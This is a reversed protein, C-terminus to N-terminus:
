LWPACGARGLSEERLLHLVLKADDVAQKEYGDLTATPKCELIARDAEAILQLQKRPDPELLASRYKEVWEPGAPFQAVEGPMSYSPAM